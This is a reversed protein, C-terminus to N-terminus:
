IWSENQGIWTEEPTEEEPPPQQPRQNQLHLMRVGQIDAAALAYVECDLYHNAAHNEKKIWRQVIKTGSKVAVKHESTIQEAYELDSGKYVMWSGRGNAKRMRSAIMDKYKGGDVLVFQMGYAKSGAKNITSLRYHDNMEHTAGKGPIVWESNDVYFDYVEDTDYGADIIALAVMMQSGDRKEYPVNMIMELEAFSRAQGHAIGQSTIYDGWARICWYFYGKQVDIGATLLKAWEPVVYPELDTQREAVTGASTRMRTDEWPEALWSNTFNHLEEIDNRAKMFERAIESFRVFPSYLTNIWFCVKKPFRSRQSVTVWRGKQVARQKQADTIACGCEQCIYFAFEARDTDSLGEGDDSTELNEVERRIQEAGYVEEMDKDRGPWRLNSFKLEIFEGCHPCPVFYHKEIDSSEKERWIQGDRLTPTSTKFIKRNRYTKTREEALSIPDAEKRSAGPYKDTEDLFLYRMPFSALNTPSNSGVLRIFMDAGPFSPELTPSSDDYLDKVAPSAKFMPELRNNSISIALTETPYVITTPGPDQLILYLLMNEMCATGGIQTPKVFVTEVTEPNLLEDMIDVLYPTRQNSWPGTESSPATLIRNKEACESVSMSEPPRLSDLANLLYDPCKIKTLRLRGPKQM